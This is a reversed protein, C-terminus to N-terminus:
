QGGDLIGQTPGVRDDIVYDRLTQWQAKRRALVPALARLREESLAVGHAAAVPGLPEQQAAATLGSGGALAAAQIMRRRSVAM